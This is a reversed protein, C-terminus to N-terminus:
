IIKLVKGNITLVKNNLLLVTSRTLNENKVGGKSYNYVKIGVTKM